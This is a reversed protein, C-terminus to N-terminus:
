GSVVPKQYKISVPNTETIFGDKINFFIFLIINIILFLSITNLLLIAFMKYYEVFCKLKSNPKLSDTETKVQEQQYTM